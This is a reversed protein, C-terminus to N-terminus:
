FSPKIVFGWTAIVANIDSSSAGECKKLMKKREKATDLFDPVTKGSVKHYEVIEFFEGMSLACAAGGSKINDTSLCILVGCALNAKEAAQEPTAAVGKAIRRGARNSGRGQIDSKYGIDNRKYGYNSSDAAKVDQTILMAILGIVVCPALVAEYTLNIKSM